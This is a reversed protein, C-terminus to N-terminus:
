PKKRQTLPERKDMFAFARPPQMTKSMSHGLAKKHASCPSALAVSVACLAGCLPLRLAYRCAAFGLLLAPCAPSLLYRCAAGAIAAARCPLRYFPLRCPKLRCAPCAIAAPCRPLCFPLAAPTFCAFRTSKTTSEGM